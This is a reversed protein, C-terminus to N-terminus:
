HCGGAQLQLHLGAPRCPSIHPLHTRTRTCQTEQPAPGRGRQGPFRRSYGDTQGTSCLALASRVGWGEQDQPSSGAKHGTGKSGSRVCERPAFMGQPLSADMEVSTGEEDM